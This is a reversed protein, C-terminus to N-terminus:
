TYSWKKYKFCNEYYGWGHFSGTIACLLNGIGQGILEKHPKQKVGTISDAVISTLLTDISGLVALTFALSLITSYHSFNMEPMVFSPLASSIEGITDVELGLYVSLPTLVGLAILSTSM